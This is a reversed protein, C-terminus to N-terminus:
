LALLGRGSGALLGATGESRSSLLRGPADDAVFRGHDLVLLRDATRLTSVRHAIVLTTRGARLEALGAHLAAETESDLNAAPEDLVLIPADALLARAIAIRQRQGGSLEIGREGVETGYGDPLASVFDDAQAARAAELVEDDTACPRGLRLNDAITGRFLYVDQPVLTVLSRLRTEDMQRLDIGDITVTGHVPDILRLLLRAITTKGAGSHGALAVTEGARLEFTVGSVADPLDPQYRYAVDNFRVTHGAEASGTVV